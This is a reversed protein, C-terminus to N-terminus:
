DEQLEVICLPAPIAPARDNEVCVLFYDEIAEKFNREFQDQTYAEVILRDPIGHVCGYFHNFAIQEEIIQYNRYTIIKM